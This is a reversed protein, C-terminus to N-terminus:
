RRGELYQDLEEQGELEAAYRIGAGETREIKHCDPCADQHGTPSFVIQEGAPLNSTAIGCYTSGPPRLIHYKM